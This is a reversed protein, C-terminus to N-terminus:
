CPRPSNPLREIGGDALAVTGGSYRCGRPNGHGPRRRRDIRPLAHRLDHADAVRRRAPTAAAHQVGAPVVMLRSMNATFPGPM